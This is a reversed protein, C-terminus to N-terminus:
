QRNDPFRLFMVLDDGCEALTLERTEDKGPKMNSVDAPTEIQGNPGASVLRIFKCETPNVTGDEDFDVQIQLENGWGDVVTPEGTEKQGTPLVYPGNWGIRNVPDYHKLEPATEEILEPAEEQVLECVERPIANPKHSLSELVGDKGSIANRVTHMTAQTTITVPCETNGGPTVVVLNSFSPIAILAIATLILMVIMLELLTVGTRLGHRRLRQTCPQNLSALKM